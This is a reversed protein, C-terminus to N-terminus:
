GGCGILRNPNKKVLEELEPMLSAATNSFPIVSSEDDHGIDDDVKLQEEKNVSPKVNGILMDKQKPM